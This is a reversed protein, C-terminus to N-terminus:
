VRVPAARWAEDAFLQVHAPYGNTLRVLLDAAEPAWAV